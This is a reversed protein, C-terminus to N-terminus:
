EKDKQQTHPQEAMNPPPVKKIFANTIILITCILVVKSVIAIIKKGM